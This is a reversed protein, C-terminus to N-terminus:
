LFRLRRPLCRLRAGQPDRLFRLTLLAAGIGECLFTFAAIYRAMTRADGLALEGREGAFLVMRRLYLRRGLMLALVTGATMYGLGGVQILLLTVLQGLWNYQTAIDVVVLGTVCTASTATFFADLPRPAHYGHSCYPLSLATGGLLIIVACGLVVARPVTTAVSKRPRLPVKVGPPALSANRALM